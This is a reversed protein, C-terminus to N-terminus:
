RSPIQDNVLGRLRQFENMNGIGVEEIYKQFKPEDEILRGDERVVADITALTVEEMSFTVFSNVSLVDMLLHSVREKQAPALDLQSCLTGIIRRKDEEHNQTGRSKATGNAHEGEQFRLARKLTRAYRPDTCHKDIDRELYTTQTEARRDRTKHGEEDYGNDQMDQRSGDNPEREVMHEQVAM